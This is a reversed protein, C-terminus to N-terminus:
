LRRLGRKLAHRWRTRDVPGHRQEVVGRLADLARNLLTYVRRAGPLALREAIAQASLAEYYRLVLIRREPEDLARVCADIDELIQRTRKEFLVVDPRAAAASTEQEMSLHDLVELLRASGLGQNKAHREYHMRKRSNPDLRELLRDIMAELDREDLRTGEQALRDLTEPLTRMEVLSLRYVKQEVDSLTDFWKPRRRRGFDRRLADLARSRSITMVWTSLAARGDYRALGERYLFELIEVFLTLQEDPPRSPHYRRVIARILGSYRLVFDHWAQEDGGAARTALVRDGGNGVPAAEM